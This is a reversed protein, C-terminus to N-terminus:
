SRWSTSRVIRAVLAYALRLKGSFPRRCIGTSMQAPENPPYRIWWMIPRLASRSPEIAKQGAGWGMGTAM